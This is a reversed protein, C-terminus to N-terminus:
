SEVSADAGATSENLTKKLQYPLLGIIYNGTGMCNYVRARTCLNM